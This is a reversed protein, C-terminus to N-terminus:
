KLEGSGELSTFVIEEGLNNHFPKNERIAIRLISKLLDYIRRGDDLTITIEKEVLTKKIKDPSPKITITDKDFDITASLGEIVSSYTTTKYSM